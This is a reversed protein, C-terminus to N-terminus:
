ITKRERKNDGRNREVAWEGKRRGGKQTRDETGKIPM